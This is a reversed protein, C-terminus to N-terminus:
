ASRPTDDLVLSVTADDEGHVLIRNIVTVKPGAAHQAVRYARARHARTAVWGRLELGRRGVPLLEFAHDKLAPESALALQVRDVLVVRREPAPRSRAGRVLRGVRAPGGAGLLSGILFGAAVGASFGLAALTGTVFGSSRSHGRTVSLQM